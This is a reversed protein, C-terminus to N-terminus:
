TAIRNIVAELDLGRAGRSVPSVFLEFSGLAPHELRYMRADVGARANARFLLSFTEGPSRENRRAEILRVGLTRAGRRHLRFESGVLPVYSAHRLYALGDKPRGISSGALSGGALAAGAGGSGATLAALAGAKLLGGRTLGRSEDRESM